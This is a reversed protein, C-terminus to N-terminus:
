WDQKCEDEEALTKYLTHVKFFHLYFTFHLLGLLTGRYFRSVLCYYNGKDDDTMQLPPPIQPQHLHKRFNWISSSTSIQKFYLEPKARQGSIKSECCMYLTHQLTLGFLHNCSSQFIHKNWAGRNPVGSILLWVSTQNSRHCSKNNEKWFFLPCFSRLKFLDM